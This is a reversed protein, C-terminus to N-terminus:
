KSKTPPKFCVLQTATRLYLCDHAIAPTAYIQEGLDLTGRHDFSDGTAISFVKGERSAVYITEGNSVPSSYFTGDLRERWLSEGSEAEICSAIGGDSFVYFRGGIAITTPVYPLNRRPRYAVKPQEDKGNPLRIVAAEKGGAGSGASLFAYRGSVAVSGVFRQRFGPNTEWLVKGTDPDVATLGHATSTFLLCTKGGPAPQYAVPCSYPTHAPAPTRPLKWEVKGTKKSLAALFCDDGANDNSVIVFDGHLVPSAGSGHQAQFSGVKKRWLRKGAHDLALAVVAAGSTWVVYVGQGDVAPTSSAFSNFRHQHYRQFSESEAWLEKGNTADFCVVERKGRGAERTLILRDGWLVPSSYGKGGADVQWAIQDKRLVKPLEPAKTIGRGGPGRFRTWEQAHAVPALLCVLLLLSSTKM